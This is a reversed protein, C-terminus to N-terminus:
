HDNSFHGDMEHRHRKISYICVDLMDHRLKRHRLDFISLLFLRLIHPCIRETGMVSSIRLVLMVKDQQCVLETSKFLHKEILCHDYLHRKRESIQNWRLKRGPLSFLAYDNDTIQDSQIFYASAYVRDM